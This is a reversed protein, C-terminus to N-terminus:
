GDSPEGVEVSNIIDTNDCRSAIIGKERRLQNISKPSNKWNYSHIQLHHNRCLPIQKRLIARQKNKIVDKLPKMDKISKVHHMEINQITGCIFCPEGLAKIGRSM